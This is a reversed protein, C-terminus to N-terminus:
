AKNTGVRIEGRIGFVYVRQKKQEDGKSEEIGGKSNEFKNV